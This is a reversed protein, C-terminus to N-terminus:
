LPVEVCEEQIREVVLGGDLEEEADRSQHKEAATQLFADTSDAEQEQEEQQGGSGPQEEAEQIEQLLVSVLWVSLTQNGDGQGTHGQGGHVGLHGFTKQTSDTEGGHGKGPHEENDGCSKDRM